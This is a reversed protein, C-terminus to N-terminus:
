APGYTPCTFAPTGSRTRPRCDAYGRDLLSQIAARPLFSGLVADTVPGRPLAELLAPLAWPLRPLGARLQPPLPEGPLREPAAAGAAGRAEGGYLRQLLGPPSRVAGALDLEGTRHLQGLRGFFTTAAVPDGPAVANFDGCILHPTGPDRAAHRLVAALERLRDPEGRGRRQFAAPLHVTHLRVAAVAAGAPTAVQLELSNRLFIARERHNVRRQVPWRTLVAQHRPMNASGPVCQYGLEDALRQVAPLDDAEQLALLDPRAQAVLQTIAPWRGEGGVLLNYTMVRLLVRPARAAPPSSGM